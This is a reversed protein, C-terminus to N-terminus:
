GRPGRLTIHHRERGGTEAVLVDDDVVMGLLLDVAIDDQDGPGRGPTSRRASTGWESSRPTNVSSHRDLQVSPRGPAGAADVM